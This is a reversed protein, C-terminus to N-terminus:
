RSRGLHDVPIIVDSVPGHSEFHKHIQASTAEFPLNGIYLRKTAASAASYFRHLAPLAAAAAATGSIGLAPKLFAALSQM